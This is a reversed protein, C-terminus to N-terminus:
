LVRLGRAARSVEQLTNGLEAGLASDPEIWRDASELTGRASVLTKDLDVISRRLDDGIAKLPVDDLKKVISAVRTELAELQGPITPLRVPHQSWDLKAPPADRFFDFAVYLAGTLLNGRT